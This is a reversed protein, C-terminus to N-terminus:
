FAHSHNSLVAAFEDSNELIEDLRDLLEAVGGREGVRAQVASDHPTFVVHSGEEVCGGDVNPKNLLGFVLNVIASDERVGRLGVKEHVAVVDSIGLIGELDRKDPVAAEGVEENMKTTHNTLECRLRSLVGSKLRSMTSTTSNRLTITRERHKTTSIRRSVVRRSTFFATVTTM